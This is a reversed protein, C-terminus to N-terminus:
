VKVPQGTERAMTAADALRQAMLGDRGSPSPPTGNEVADIFADSIAQRNLYDHHEQSVRPSPCTM